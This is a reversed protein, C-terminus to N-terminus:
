NVLCFFNWIRFGFTLIRANKLKFPVKFHEKLFLVILKTELYLWIMCTLDINWAFIRQTDKKYLALKLWMRQANQFTSVLCSNLRRKFYQLVYFKNKPFPLNHKQMQRFHTIKWLPCSLPLIFVKGFYLAVCHPVLCLGPDLSAM